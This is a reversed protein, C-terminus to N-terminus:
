RRGEDRLSKWEDWNFPEALGQEARLRLGALAAHAEARDLLPEIAILRAVPKGYRTITVDEGREVCDLLRGFKKKADVVSVPQM